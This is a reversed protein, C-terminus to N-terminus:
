TPLILSNMVLINSVLLNPKLIHHFQMQVPCAYKSCFYFYNRSWKSYIDVIYNFKENKSPPKVHKPKLITDILNNAKATMNEKIANPLKPKAQKSPSFVWMKRSKAM